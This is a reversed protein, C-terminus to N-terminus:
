EDNNDELLQLPTVLKPTFLGLMGNIRHIHDFKNANTIHKCNWTVLFDCKHFSALALHAADGMADTPMLKHKIYATVIEDISENYDLLFLDKILQLDNERKPDPTRQLEAIVPAGVLLIANQRPKHQWERTWERM